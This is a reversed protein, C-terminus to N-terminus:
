SNARADLFLEKLLGSVQEAFRTQSFQDYARMRGELGMRERLDKDLVLTKIRDALMEPNAPPVLFGTVEDVIIEALGGHATGIVPKGAAMAEVAVLGFPEPLISPVVIVDLAAYVEKIKVRYDLFMVRDKIGLETVRKKLRALQDDRKPDYVSGVIVYKIRPLGVLTRAAEVLFEQGKWFHIRGVVGVLVEDDGAGLTRRIQSGSNSPTFRNVDVGNHIVIARPQLTRRNEVLNNLTAFSNCVVVDSLRWVLHALLRRVISPSLVIEHVHWVHTCGLMKAVLGGSLVGITNTYIGIVAEHKAIRRLYWVARFLFCCTTVFGIISFNKRRLVGLERVYIKTCSEALYDVLPGSSSLVVVPEVVRSAARVTDAFVKDSGYLEGGQHVFLLKPKMRYAGLFRRKSLSEKELM